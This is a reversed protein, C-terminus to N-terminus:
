IAYGFFKIVEDTDRGSIKKGTVKEVADLLCTARHAIFEDFKDEKLDDYEIWHSELYKKLDAQNVSESNQITLLYKSPANGGITRNTKATLPTKNIISNWKLKDYNIIECHKRPFIHHIDIKENDYLVLDMEDGNIFDRSKNKMILAMFGKYAASQRTQLSLLRIPRFDSNQVTNPLNGGNIWNMVDKVDNAYRTENAGGYLEGFVGCWYWQRISNKSNSTILNNEALITFIVSMPILQTTYPLDRGSFIREGKLFKATQHFGKSLSDAYNKYENLTLNLVDKKKCSVAGGRKYSALLTCATLFDTASVVRLIDNDFYQEFRKQWDERLAFNGMAFVATILEFVTLSVGGTNVNEFVQCVAEKSTNKELSIVPIRYNIVRDIIKEKFKKYEELIAPNYNHYALYNLLWDERESSDFIINLPFMKNKLEKEQSSLDIEIKRGFDSTVIKSKPISIISDIRDCDLDLSKEINIYYFVEIKKGKDTKTEVATKCYMAEYISTLRQQGDLILKEPAIDLPPAGEIMRYKFQVDPNGYELFMTAGVPFSNTISAILAIIHDNNWVWGRQFDPLQIKGAHINKMLDIISTDNTQM